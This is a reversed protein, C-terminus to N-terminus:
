FIAYVHVIIIPTKLGTTPCTISAIKHHLGQPEIISGRLHEQKIITYMLLSAHYALWICVINMHENKDYM